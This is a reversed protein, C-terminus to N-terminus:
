RLIEIVDAGGQAPCSLLLVGSTWVRVTRGVTLDDPGARQVGGRATRARIETSPSVSFIIGCEDEPPKVHIRRTARGLVAEDNVSVIPGELTSPESDPATATACGAALLLLVFCRRM